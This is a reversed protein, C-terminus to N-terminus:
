PLSVAKITFPWEKPEQTQPYVYLLSWENDM